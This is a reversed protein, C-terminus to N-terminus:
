KTSKLLSNIGYLVLMVFFGAPGTLLLLIRWETSLAKDRMRELMYVAAAGFILYVIARGLLYYLM